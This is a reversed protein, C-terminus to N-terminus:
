RQRARSSWHVAAIQWGDLVRTLVMLEAGASDIARGRFTGEASSTSSAWAVDGRVEVHVEGSERPVARAFDMDAGLHHSLYEARTEVAGSELIRAGPALLRQVAATDASALAHHFRTVTAAAAASDSRAPLPRSTQQAPAAAAFGVILFLTLLISRM